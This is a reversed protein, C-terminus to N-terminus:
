VRPPNGPPASGQLHAAYRGALPQPNTKLDRIVVTECAKDHLGQRNKDWIIQAFGLLGVSASAAYGGFREFSMWWGMPLGDLRVVRIGLLKKGPTYGRWMAMFATFYVASWGFGVGLDDMAGELFTRVGRPKEEDKLKSELESKQTTLDANANKLRAIENNLSDMPTLVSDRPITDRQVDGTMRAIAANIGAVQFAKDNDDAIEGIIDERHLRIQESTAGSTTMVKLLRTMAADAETSDDARSLSLTAATFTGIQGPAIKAKWKGLTVDTSDQVVQNLENTFISAVRQKVAKWGGFVVMFLVLAGGVRLSLRVSKRILSGETTNRSSARFLVLAAALGLFTAGSKVLIAVLLGDIGIAVLRRFPRALPLGFVEPAVM